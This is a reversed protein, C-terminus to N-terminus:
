KTIETKNQKDSFNIENPRDITQPSHMVIKMTSQLKHMHCFYIVQSSKDALNSSIM